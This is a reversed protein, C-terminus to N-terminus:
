SGAPNKTESGRLNTALREVAIEIRKIERLTSIRRAEMWTWQKMAVQATLTVILWVGWFVRQDLDPAIYFRYGCWVMVATLLLTVLTVLIVWRRLGGKFPGIAMEVFGQKDILLYELDRAETELERKIRDDISM